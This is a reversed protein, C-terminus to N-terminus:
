CDQYLLHGSQQCLEYGGDSSLDPEIGKQNGLLLMVSIWIIFFIIGAIIEKNQSM